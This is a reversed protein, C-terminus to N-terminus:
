MLTTFTIGKWHVCHSARVYGEHIVLSMQICQWSPFWCIIIDIALIIVLTKDHKVIHTDGKHPAFFITIHDSPQLQPLFFYYPRTSDSTPCNNKHQHTKRSHPKLLQSSTKVNLTLWLSHKCINYKWHM